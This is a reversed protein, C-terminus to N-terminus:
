LPLKVVGSKKGRTYVWGFQNNADKAEICVAFAKRPYVRVICLSVAHGYRPDTHNVFSNVKLVTINPISPMTSQHVALNRM